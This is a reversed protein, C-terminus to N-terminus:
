PQPSGLRNVEENPLSSQTTKLTLSRFLLLNPKTLAVDSQKAIVAPTPPLYELAALHNDILKGTNNGMLTYLQQKLQPTVQKIFFNPMGSTISWHQATKIQNTASLQQFAEDILINTKAAITQANIFCIEVEPHRGGELASILKNFSGRICIPIDIGGIDQENSNNINNGRQIEYLYPLWQTLRESPAGSKLQTDHIACWVLSIAEKLSINALPHYYDIQALRLLCTQAVKAQRRETITPLRNAWNSLEYKAWDLCQELAIALNQQAYYKKLKQAAIVISNEVSALQISERGSILPRERTLLATSL